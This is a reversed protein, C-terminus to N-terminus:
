FIKRHAQVIKGEVEFEIDCFEKEYFLKKFDNSLDEETQLSSIPIKGEM